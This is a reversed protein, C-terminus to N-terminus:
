EVVVHHQTRQESISRATMACFLTAFTEEMHPISHKAFYASNQTISSYYCNFCLCGQKTGIAESWLSLYYRERTPHWVAMAAGYSTPM